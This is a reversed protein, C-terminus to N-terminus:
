KISGPRQGGFLEDLFNTMARWSRRDAAADYVTGIDPDNVVPNTLAHMTNGYGRLQWDARSIWCVSGVLVSDM